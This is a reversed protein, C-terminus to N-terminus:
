KRRRPIQRRRSRYTWSALVALVFTALIVALMLLPEFGGSVDTMVTDGKAQALGDISVTATYNYFARATFAPGKRPTVTMELDVAAGPNYIWTTLANTVNYSRRWNGVPLALNRFDLLTVNGAMYAAPLPSLENQRSQYVVREITENLPRKDYDVYKKFAPGIYAAGILNYSVNEFRLDRSVSFSIWSCNLIQLSGKRSSAGTVEFRITSNIWGEKSVLDGSLSSIAINSIRRRVAEELASTLNQASLDTFAASANPMATANQFFHLSLNVSVKGDHVAYSLSAGHVSATFSSFVLITLFSVTLLRRRRM